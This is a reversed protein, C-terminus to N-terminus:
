LYHSEQGSGCFLIHSLLDYYAGNNNHMWFGFDFLIHSRTAEFLRHHAGSWLHHLLLPEIRLRISSLAIRNFWLTMMM